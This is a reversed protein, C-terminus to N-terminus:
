LWHYANKDNCFREYLTIPSTEVFILFDGFKRNKWVDWINDVKVTNLKVYKVKFTLLSRLFNLVPISHDLKLSEVM